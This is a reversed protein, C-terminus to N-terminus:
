AEFRKIILLETYKEIGINKLAEKTEQIFDYRTIWISKQLPEFGMSRLLGRFFDRAKRKKEPIDFFVMFWQKQPLKKKQLNPMRMQMVRLIGKSDLIYGAHKQELVRKIIKRKYLMHLTDYLKKKKNKDSICGLMWQHHKRAEPNGSIYDMARGISFSARYFDCFDAVLLLLRASINTQM